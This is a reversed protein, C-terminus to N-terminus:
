CIETNERKSDTQPRVDLDLPLLSLGCCPPLEGAAGALLHTGQAIESAHKLISLPSGPPGFLEHSATKPPANWTPNFCRSPVSLPCRTPQASKGAHWSCGPFCLLSCTSAAQRKEKCKQHFHTRARLHHATATKHSLREPGRHHLNKM